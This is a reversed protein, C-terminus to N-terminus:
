KGQSAIPERLEKPRKTNPNIHMDRRVRAFPGMDDCTIFDYLVKIWSYHCPLPDYFEKAIEKLQPLRTCPINPFDHHENHYGVNFVFYNLPGYYSFTEQNKVFAYHESIFHGSIPHLGLGLVTGMLLYALAKFGFFHYISYDFTLQVIWNVIELPEVKKPLVIMPRLSYFVPQLMIFLVKGIPSSFLKVEIKTPLDTDMQTDALFKHHDLHYKKFTISAAVGLPLNSIMGLIRNATLHKQGFALNHSIEHLSLSLSHNITGGVVYAFFLLVSWSKDQMMYCMFIQFLVMAVCQLAIRWDHGMLKKVQPYKALIQRRREFHPQDSTVWIFDKEKETEAYGM